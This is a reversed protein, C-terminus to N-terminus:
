SRRALELPSQNLTRKFEVIRRLIETEDEKVVFSSGNTMMVVHDAGLEVHEILDPNLLIETNNLRTLRIM